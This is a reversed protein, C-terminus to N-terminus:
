SYNWKKLRLIYVTKNCFKEDKFYFYCSHSIKLM